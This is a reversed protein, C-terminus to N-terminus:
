GGGGTGLESHSKGEGDAGDHVASVVRSGLVQVDDGDDPTTGPQVPQRSGGGTVHHTFLCRSPSSCFRIRPDQYTMAETLFPLGSNLFFTM